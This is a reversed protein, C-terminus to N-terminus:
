SPYDTPLDPHKKRLEVMEIARQVLLKSDEPTAELVIMMGDEDAEDEDMRIPIARIIKLLRGAGDEAFIVADHPLSALAAHLQGVTMAKARPEPEQNDEDM